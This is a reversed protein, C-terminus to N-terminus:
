RRLLALWRWLNLISAMAGAVYTLAAARLIRRAAQEDAANIYNGERLIPLAKNFSADIEVPLTILHLLVASGMSTIGMVLMLLGLGPSRTLLTLVPLAILMGAAIRQLTHAVIALRSRLSLLPEQRHHQIAHGVEHAAVAIATLSKISYHSPSLRVMKAVPDYHDDGEKTQEVKVETLAFREILHQALEGGTGPFDARPTKYRRFTYRVWWQPAFFIILVLLIAFLIPM